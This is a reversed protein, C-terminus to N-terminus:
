PTGPGGKAFTGRSGYGGCAGCLGPRRKPGGGPPTNSHGHTHSAHTHTHTHTHTDTVSERETHRHGDRPRERNPGTPPTASREGREKQPHTGRDRPRRRPSARRHAAQLSNKLSTLQPRALQSDSRGRALRGKGETGSRRQSVIAEDLSWAQGCSTAAALGVRAGGGRVLGASGPRVLQQPSIWPVGTCAEQDSKAPRCGSGRAHRTQSGRAHKRTHKSRKPGTPAPAVRECAHDSSGCRVGRWADCRSPRWTMLSSGRSPTRSSTRSSRRFLARPPRGSSPRLFPTRSM